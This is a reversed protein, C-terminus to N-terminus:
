GSSQSPVKANAFVREPEHRKFPSKDYTCEYLGTLTLDLESLPRRWRSGKSKVIPKACWRCLVTKEDHPM